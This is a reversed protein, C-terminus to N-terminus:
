ICRSGMMWGTPGPDAVMMGLMMELNAPVGM